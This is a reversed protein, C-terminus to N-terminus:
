SAHQMHWVEWVAEMERHFGFDMGSIGEAEWMYAVHRSNCNCGPNGPKISSLFATM